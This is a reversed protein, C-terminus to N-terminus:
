HRLALRKANWIARIKKLLTTTVTPAEYWKCIEQITTGKEFCEFVIKLPLRTGKLIVQGGCTEPNSSVLDPHEQLFERLLRNEGKM